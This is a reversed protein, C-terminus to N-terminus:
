LGNLADLIEGALDVFDEVTALQKATILVRIGLAALTKVVQWSDPLSKLENVIADLFDQTTITGAAGQQQLSTLTSRLKAVEAARTPSSVGLVAARVRAAIGFRGPTPAPPTPTVPQPAPTPMPIVPEPAPPRPPAPEVPIPEVPTPTVPQPEPSPCPMDGPITLPWTLVDNGDANSVLLTVVYSGGYSAVQVRRGGDKVDLQKRGKLEPNIKWTFHTPEGACGTADLVLIEGRVGTTPGNIIATPPAAQAVQCGIWLLPVLWLFSFPVDDGGSLKAMDMAPPPPPAVYDIDYGGARLDALQEDTLPGLLDLKQLDLAAPTTTQGALKAKLWELLVPSLSQILNALWASVGAAIASGTNGLDAGTATQTLAAGIVGALSILASKVYKNGALGALLSFLPLWNM